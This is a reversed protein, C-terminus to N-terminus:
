AVVKLRKQILLWRSDRHCHYSNMVNKHVSESSSGSLSLIFTLLLRLTVRGPKRGLTTCVRLPLLSGAAKTVLAGKETVFGTGMPLPQTAQRSGM